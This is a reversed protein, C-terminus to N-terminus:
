RSIAELQGAYKPLKKYLVAMQKPSLYGKNAYQMAFSSLIEADMANFGVNNRYSTDQSLKEDNTQFEYLRVLAYVAWRPNTSLKNRIFEKREEKTTLDSFKM